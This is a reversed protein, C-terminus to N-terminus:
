YSHHHHHHHGHSHHPHHHHSHHRHSIITLTQASLLEPGMQGIVGTIEADNGLVGREGGPM